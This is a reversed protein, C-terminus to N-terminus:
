VTLLTVRQNKQKRESSPPPAALVSCAQSRISATQLAVCQVPSLASTWLIEERPTPSVAWCEPPLYKFRLLSLTAWTDYLSRRAEAQGRRGQGNGLSHFPTSPSCGGGYHSLFACQIKLLTSVHRPTKLGCQFMQHIRVALLARTLHFSYFHSMWAFLASWLARLLSWGLKSFYHKSWTTSCSGWFM